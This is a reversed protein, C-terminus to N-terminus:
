FFMQNVKILFIKIKCYILSICPSCKHNQSNQFLIENKYNKRDSIKRMVKTSVFEFCFILLNSIMKPNMDKSNLKGVSAFAIFSSNSSYTLITSGPFSYFGILLAGILFGEKNISPYRNCISFGHLPSMIRKTSSFPLM